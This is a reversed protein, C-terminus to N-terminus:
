CAKSASSTATIGLKEFCEVVEAGTRALESYWVETRSTRPRYRLRAVGIMMVNPVTSRVPCLYIFGDREAAEIKEPFALRMGAEHASKGIAMEVPECGSGATGYPHLIEAEEM